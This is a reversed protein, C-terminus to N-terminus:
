YETKVFVGARGFCPLGNKGKHPNLAAGFSKRRFTKGCVTCRFIQTPGTSGTSLRGRKGVAGFVGAQATVPTARASLAPARLPGSDTLEIVFRPTFSRRTAKAGAIRDVRYSRSENSDAKVAYLLLNGASTRRLSYPEITRSSRKGAEDRYDLEVCLRNAAAFRIVELPAEVGFTRWSSAMVPPRWATDVPEATRVSIVPLEVRAREEFLWAFVVPLEDWFSEFSPLEPLQQALMQVWATKLEGVLPSERIRQITPVPIGKFECKRRLTELVAEREPQLEQRRYLHVVDYLDRPRLREALARVKEAFVEEFAYTAIFMGNEPLDSYPHHVSRRDADLVVREHDTLDLKVRPADGGRGLPGRYGIRGEASTGGRPNTVVEIKRADPPLVLGSENYIWDTIEAFLKALFREDLHERERLTFDLDESFRYTEFFCKKLCTGGKFLWADRTDHHEGLAALLWGLAYDKEVVNPALGFDAALDLLEQRPIVAGAVREAVL